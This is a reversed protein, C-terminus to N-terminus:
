PRASRKGAAFYTVRDDLGAVWGERETKRGNAGSTLLYCRGSLTAEFAFSEGRAAHGHFAGLM